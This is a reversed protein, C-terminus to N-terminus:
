TLDSEYSQRRRRRRNLIISVIILIIIIIIAALLSIILLTGGLEPLKSIPSTGAFTVTTIALTSYHVGDKVYMVGVAVPFQAGTFQPPVVVFSASANSNSAISVNRYSPSVSFSPPAYVTIQADIPFDAGSSINVFVNNSTKGLNTITLISQAGRLFDALCPFITTFTSTGQTYRVLFREVFSGPTTFNHMYIREAYTSGPAVFPIMITTNNPIAGDILPTIVLNTATGNGSNTLNFQLYNNPNSIIGSYCTGTLTVTSAGAIGILISAIVAFILLRM